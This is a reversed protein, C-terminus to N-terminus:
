GKRGAGRRHPLAVGAARLAKLAPGCLAPGAPDCLAAEDFARWVTAEGGTPTGTAPYCHVVWVRHTFGHEVTVAAGAAELGLARLAFPDPGSAEVAPLDWLGGLLGDEPRRGLWIRGEADRVLAAVREFRPREPRRPKVPLKQADGTARARCMAALPCVLCAPSRPTCVTAGLEMLAQNVDGARADDALAAARQWLRERVAPVKPDDVVRDLRCLVRVVNGDLAPLRHGFAISGVAGTTYRGFGALAALAAPDAPVEGGHRLAVQQAARHLNRARAYYGLGAWMSLVEDVPAAALAAPTPFRAIFRHFYGIVSEVRTQQLMVESVWVPWPRPDRRWPLDRHGRDYGALLAARIAAPDAPAPADRRRGDAADAPVDSAAGEAPGGGTAASM